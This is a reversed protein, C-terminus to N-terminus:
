EKSPLLWQIDKQEYDLKKNIQIRTQNNQIIKTIGIFKANENTFSSYFIDKKPELLSFKIENMDTWKGSKNIFSANFLLKQLQNLELQLNKKRELLEKEKNQLKNLQLNQLSFNKLAKKYQVPISQGQKTLEELKKEIDHIGNKSSLIYQKIKSIQHNLKSIQKELIMLEEDYNKDTSKIKAHFKNNDGQFNEITTNEFFVCSNNSQLNQIYIKDAQINGGLSKKIKVEKAKITGGELLDIDISEAQAFGRHTKIYAQKAQIKAKSHTTGEIKMTKASLQTNSSVNGLINLEECEIGVGSNVADKMESSLKINIKVNKDWGAKIIGINKFDVGNFELDNAIDFKNGDQVVYGKKLAIYETHDDKQVEKFAKSCSFQVKNENPALVKLTHLNLNKGEKGQKFQTHKLVVENEDVVIIGSRKEDITYNKTKDKYVLILAEDQTKIPDIGKAITIQVTKNLPTNKHEKCFSLLNKKFDFIRIGILFGLKLMKKYINQLLELALKEHFKLDKFDIQAIIKTLNQNAILKIAQSTQSPHTTHFIAIKYEQKIQLDQKLFIEDNEFLTLKTEPIKNWQLDEFRYQTNFALLNFDLENLNINKQSAINLLERAPNDTYTIIAEDLTM